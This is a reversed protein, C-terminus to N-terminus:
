VVPLILLVATVVDVNNTPIAVGGFLHGNGSHAM